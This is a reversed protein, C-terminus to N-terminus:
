GHVINPLRDRATGLDARDLFGCLADLYPRWAPEQSLILHNKSELTVFRANPINRALMLGYEFPTRADGRSHLVLTPVSVRPLLDVVDIDGIVDLLRIATETSASARELDNFWRMQELTADPVILSTFMQRAAPNERGWGERMLAISAENRAVDSASGRKRWGLAFGGSLILRSVREPHRAAYAISVPAGQSFGLLAFRDLALEDVVTELDRVFAEFSFEPVDRSSLGTGREDYRILRCQGALQTFLPAWVPSHWDFELHNLWNATKVLPPGNGVTAVALHVGDSARCFSIQQQLAAAAANPEATPAAMVTTDPQCPDTMRERVEVVFRFGRRPVTRILQQQRGTDGIARRAAGIRSTVADESVVRGNWVAQMLEDKSVVRDRHRVLYALLDFVQPEVHTLVGQRCLERRECDIECEGFVFIMQKAEGPDFDGPQVRGRSDPNEGAFRWAKKPVASPM